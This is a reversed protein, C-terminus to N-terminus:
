TKTTAVVVSWRRSSCTSSTPWPTPRWRCAWTSAVSPHHAVQDGTSFKLRTITVELQAKGSQDAVTLKDGIRGTAVKAPPPPLEPEPVPEVTGADDLNDVVTPAVPPEDTVAQPEAPYVVVAAVLLGLGALLWVAAPLLWTYARDIEAQEPAHRRYRVPVAGGITPKRGFGVGSTFTVTRGDATTFRVV